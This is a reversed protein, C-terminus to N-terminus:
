CVKEVILIFDVRLSWFFGFHIYPVVSIIEGKLHNLSEELRSQDGTMKIEFRHVRSNM